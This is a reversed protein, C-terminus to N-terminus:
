AHGAKHRRWPQPWGSGSEVLLATSLALCVQTANLKARKGSPVRSLNDTESSEKGQRDFHTLVEVQKEPHTISDTLHKACLRSCWPLTAFPVWPKWHQWGKCLRLFCHQCRLGGTGERSSEKLEPGEDGRGKNLGRQEDGKQSDARQVQVLDQAISGPGRKGYRGGWPSSKRGM